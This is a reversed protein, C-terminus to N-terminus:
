RHTHRWATLVAVNGDGPKRPEIPTCLPAHGCDAAVAIRGESPLTWLEPDPTHGITEILAVTRDLVDGTQRAPDPREPFHDVFRGLRECLERYIATHLILAHWGEDVTRSPAIRATPNAAAAAIFALANIVIADATSAEMGPNNGQVTAVVDGMQEETLLGRVNILTTSM